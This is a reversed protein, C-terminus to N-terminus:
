FRAKVIEFDKRLYRSNISRKLLNEANKKDPLDGHLILREFRLTGEKQDSLNFWIQGYTYEYTKGTDHEIAQRM